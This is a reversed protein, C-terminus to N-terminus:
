TQGSWKMTRQYHFPIRSRSASRVSKQGKNLFDAFVNGWNGSLPVCNGEKERFECWSSSIWASTLLRASLWRFGHTSWKETSIEPWIVRIERQGDSCMWLNGLCIRGSWWSQKWLVLFLLFYMQEICHRPSERRISQFTRWLCSLRAMSAQLM